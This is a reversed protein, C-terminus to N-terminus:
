ETLNKYKERIEKAEGMSVEVPYSESEGVVSTVAEKAKEEDSFGTWEVTSRAREYIYM